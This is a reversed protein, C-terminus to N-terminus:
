IDEGSGIIFRNYPPLFFFNFTLFSLLSALIGPGLGGIAAAAVVIVLYGFGKSLPALGNRFPLLAATLAATGVTAVLYGALRRRPRRITLRALRPPMRGRTGTITGAVFAM